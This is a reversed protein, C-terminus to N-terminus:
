FLVHVTDLRADFGWSALKDRLFLANNLGYPSGLQHPFATMRKMWDRLNNAQLQKDFAAELDLEKKAGEAGFGLLTQPQQAQASAMAMGSFLISTFTRKFLHRM